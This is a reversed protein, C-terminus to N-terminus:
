IIHIYLTVPPQVSTAMWDSPFKVMESHCLTRSLSTYMDFINFWVIIISILEYCLLVVSYILVDTCCMLMIPCQHASSTARKSIHHVVMMWGMLM